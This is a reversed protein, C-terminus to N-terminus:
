WTTVCTLPATTSSFWDCYSAAPNVGTAATGNGAPTQAASTLAGSM